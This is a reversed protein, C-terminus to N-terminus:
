GEGRIGAYREMKGLDAPSWRYAGLLWQRLYGDRRITRMDVCMLSGFPSQYGSPACPLKPCSIRPFRALPGDVLFFISLGRVAGCCPCAFGAFEEVAATGYPDWSGCLSTSGVDLGAFCEGDDGAHVCGGCGGGAPTRAQHCQSCMFGVRLAVGERRPVYFGCCCCTEGVSGADWVMM